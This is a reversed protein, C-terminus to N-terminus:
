EKEMSYRLRIAAREYFVLYVALECRSVEVATDPLARARVRRRRRRKLPSYSSASSSKKRGQKRKVFGLLVRSAVNRESHAEYEARRGGWNRHHQLGEAVGIVEESRGRMPRSVLQAMGARERDM